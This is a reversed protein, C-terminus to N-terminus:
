QLNGTSPANQKKVLNVDRLPEVIMQEHMMRGIVQGKFLAMSMGQPDDQELEYAVKAADVLYAQVEFLASLSENSRCAAIKDETTDGGVKEEIAASFAALVVMATESLTSM